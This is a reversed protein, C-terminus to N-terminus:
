KKKGKPKPEHPPPEPEVAPPTESEIAAPEVAPAAPASVAAVATALKAANGYQAFWRETWDEWGEKLARLYNNHSNLFATQATVGQFNIARSTVNEDYGIVPIPIEYDRRRLVYRYTGHAPAHPDLDM